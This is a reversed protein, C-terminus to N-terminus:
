RPIRTKMSSLLKLALKRGKIHYIEKISYIREVTKQIVCSTILFCYIVHHHNNLYESFTSHSFVEFLAM